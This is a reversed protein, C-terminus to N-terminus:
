NYVISSECNSNSRSGSCPYFDPHKILNVIKNKNYKYVAKVNNTCTTGFSEILPLYKGCSSYIIILRTYCRNNDDTINKSRSSVEIESLSNDKCSFSSSSSSSKHCTEENQCANTINLANNSVLNGYKSKCKNIVIQPYYGLVSNIEGLYTGCIGGNNSPINGYNQCKKILILPCELSNVLLKYLLLNYYETGSTDIISGFYAGCIGGGGGNTTMNGYNICKSIKGNTFPAYAGAIGGSLDYIDGTNTCYKLKYNSCRSSIIGGSSGMVIGYNTSHRVKFLNCAYGCIGSGYLTNDIMDYYNKCTKAKFNNCNLVIGAVYEGSLTFLNDPSNTINKNLCDTIKFNYCGICIGALMITLIRFQSVNFKGTNTCSFIYFDHSGFGVIGGSGKLIKGNTDTGSNNENTNNLNTINSSISGYNICKKISFDKCYGGCIGGVNSDNFDGYNECFLIDFNSCLSGCLGGSLNTFENFSLYNKCNYIVFNSQNYSVFASGGYNEFDTISYPIGSLIINSSKISLNKILVNKKHSKILFLGKTLFSSNDPGSLLISNNNGDFTENDNLQIYFLDVLYSIISINGSMTYTKTHTDYTLLGRDSPDIYPSNNFFNLVELYNRLINGCPQNNLCQESNTSMTDFTVSVCSTSTDCKSDCKSDSSDSFTSCSSLDNFYKNYNDCEDKSKHSHKHSHKHSDKSKHSHKHSDKRKHSDKSKHSNKNKSKEKCKCKDKSNNILSM